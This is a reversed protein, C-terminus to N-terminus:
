EVMLAKNICAIRWEAWHKHTPHIEMFEEFLERAHILKSKWGKDLDSLDGNKLSKTANWLIEDGKYLLDRNIRAPIIDVNNANKNNKLNFKSNSSDILGGYGLSKLHELEEDTLKDGTANDNQILSEYIKLSQASLAYAAKKYNLILKKDDIRKAEWEHKVSDLRYSRDGRHMLEILGLPDENFNYFYYEGNRKIYHAKPKVAGVPTRPRLHARLVFNRKNKVGEIFKINNKLFYHHYNTNPSVGFAYNKAWNNHDLGNIINQGQIHAPPKIKLLSLITPMFDVTEVLHDIRKGKHKSHPFKILLPILVEENISCLGHGIMLGNEMFIEGHDSTIIILSNDYLKLQKLLEFLQNVEHDVFAVTGDYRNVVDQVSDYEKLFFSDQYGLHKCQFLSGQPLTRGPSTENFRSAYPEPPTFPAHTDFTHIFLFFKEDAQDKIWEHLAGRFRQFGNTGKGPNRKDKYDDFGIDFGYKASVMGGDTFAQTKYGRSKLVEALTPAKLSLRNTKGSGDSAIPLMMGHAEPYLGTMMSMHSPLTYPAQAYANEFLVADEKAFRDLHPSTNRKYGYCGLHDQRLTDLSILIIAHPDTKNAADNNCSGFIFGISLLFSLSIIQKIAVYRFM